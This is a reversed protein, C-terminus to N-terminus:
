LDERQKKANNNTIDSAYLSQLETWSTVNFGNTTLRKLTQYQARMAFASSAIRGM